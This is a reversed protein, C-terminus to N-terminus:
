ARRSRAFLAPASPSCLSYYGQGGCENFLVVDFRVHACINSSRFAGAFIRSRQGKPTAWRPVVDLISGASGGIPAPPALFAKAPPCCVGLDGPEVYAVAVEHGAAALELALGTNATGIGGNKFLGHFEATVLCIRLRCLPEASVNSSRVNIRNPKSDERM